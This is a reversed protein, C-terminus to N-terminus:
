RASLRYSYRGQDGILSLFYTGAQGPSFPFRAVHAPADVAHKAILKGSPDFIEATGKFPAPFLIQIESGSQVPNPFIVPRPVIAGNRATGGDTIEVEAAHEGLPFAYIQDDYLTSNKLRIEARQGVPADDKVRFKVVTAVGKVNQLSKDAGLFPLNLKLVGEQAQSVNVDTASFDTGEVGWFGSTWEFGSFELKAADFHIDFGLGFVIAAKTEDSGLIIPAEFTTGRGAEAPPFVTLPPLAQAKVWTFAFATIAMAQGIGSKLCLNM